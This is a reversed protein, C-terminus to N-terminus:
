RRPKWDKALMGYIVHDAYHDYLWERQRLVGEKKFGLRKPVARSKENTLGCHIEVKNFKFGQFAQDILLRCAQTMLGQGTFREAIWYGLEAKKNIWDMFNYSICGALRNGKWIGFNMVKKGAKDKQSKRIFALTDKWTQTRDVWPLWPRLWNRNEDTLQFLKKVDSERLPKLVLNKSASRLIM